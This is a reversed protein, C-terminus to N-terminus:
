LTCVVQIRGSLATRVDVDNSRKFEKGQSKLKSENGFIFEYCINKEQIDRVCEVIRKMRDEVFRKTIGAPIERDDKELLMGIFYWAKYLYEAEIPLLIGNEFKSSLIRDIERFENCAHWISANQKWEYVGLKYKAKYSNENKESCKRFYGIANTWDHKHKEISRGYWYNSKFDFATGEALEASKKYMDVCKKRYFMNCEYIRAATRYIKSQFIPFEQRQEARAKLNGAIWNTDFLMDAGLFDCAENLLRELHRQAYWYYDSKKNKITIVSQEDTLEYYAEALDARAARVFNPFGLFTHLIVHNKMIDHEVYLERLFLLDSKDDESIINPEKKVSLAYIKDVCKEIFSNRIEDEEKKDLKWNLEEGDLLISDPYKRQAMEIHTKSLELNRNNSKTAIIFVTDFTDELDFTTEKTVSYDYVSIGCMSFYNRLLYFEGQQLENHIIAIKELM